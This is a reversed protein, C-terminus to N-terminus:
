VALGSAPIHDGIHSVNINANAFTVKEADLSSQAEAVKAKWSAVDKASYRNRTREDLAQMNANAAQLRQEAAVVESESASGNQELQKLASLAKTATSQELQARTRETAFNIRDEQSGNRSSCTNKM